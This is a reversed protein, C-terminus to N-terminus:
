RFRRQLTMTGITMLVAAYALLVLLNAGVERWGAEFNLTRFLTDVLYHSPILRMWNSVLGPILLSLTPLALLLMALIGWGMVSMLDRGVSAILFAVGTVMAAGALLALLNLLPQAALGGTLLLLVAAQAFAFLSGFIGKALFLGRMTLPTVLLARITGAEVESAILSALGLCEVMLVFVVLLPLMRQRPAIQAGAMDPGLVTETVEIPLDQGLILFVFEQLAVEYISVFEPPLDPALFLAVQPQTGAQLQAALDDPFVFGVPLDGALIAAQLEESTAFRAIRVEDANSLEAELAPPAEALVLGLALTEDVTKPLLFYLGTFAVLSLVTVLAFFRNAFYGKFDKAILATLMMTTM